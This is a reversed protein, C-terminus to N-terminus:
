LTIDVGVVGNMGSAGICNSMIVGLSSSKVVVDALPMSLNCFHPPPPKSIVIKLKRNELM